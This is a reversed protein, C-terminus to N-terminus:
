VYVQNRSKDLNEIRPDVLRDPIGSFLFCEAYQNGYAIGQAFDSNVQPLSKEFGDVRSKAPAQSFNDAATRRDTRFDALEKVIDADAQDVAVANRLTRREYARVMVLIVIVM